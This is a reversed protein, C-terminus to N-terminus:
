MEQNSESNDGPTSTKTKRILIRWPNAIEHWAHDSQGYNACDPYYLLNKELDAEVYWRYADEKTSYRCM